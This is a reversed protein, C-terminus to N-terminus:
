KSYLQAAIVGAGATAKVIFKAQAAIPSM